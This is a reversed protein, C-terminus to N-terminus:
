LRAMVRRDFMVVVFWCLAALIYTATLAMGFSLVRYLVEGVAVLLVMLGVVLATTM